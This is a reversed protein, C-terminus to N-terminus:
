ACPLTLIGISLAISSMACRPRGTAGAGASCGAIAPSLRLKGAIDQAVRNDTDFNAGVVQVDIPAPAGMSVVADVLSGNGGAAHQDIFNRQKGVRGAGHRRNCKSGCRHHPNWAVKEQSHELAKRVGGHLQARM